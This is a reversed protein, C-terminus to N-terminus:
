KYTNNKDQTFLRQFVDYSVEFYNLDLLDPLCCPAILFRVVDTGNNTTRKACIAYEPKMEQDTSILTETLRLFFPFSYEPNGVFLNNHRKTLVSITDGQRLDKMGTYDSDTLEFAYINKKYIWEMELNPYRWEYGFADVFLYRVGHYTGTFASNFNDVAVGEGLYPRKTNKRSVWKGNKSQEWFTANRIEQSKWSLQEPESDVRDQANAFISVAFLSLLIITKKM